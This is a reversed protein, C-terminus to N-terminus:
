SSRRLYLSLRVTAQVSSEGIKQREFGIGDLAAIPVEALIQDIFGRIDTYSGQLPLTVQYRALRGKGEEEAFRYQGQLLELRHARAAAHVQGLWDPITEEGPFHQYFADLQWHPNYRQLEGNNAARDVRARMDRLQEELAVRQQEAPEVVSLQFGVGFAALAFAALWPGAVRGARRDLPLWRKM